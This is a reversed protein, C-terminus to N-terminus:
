ACKGGWGFWGSVAGIVFGSAHGANIWSPEFYPGTFPDVVVSVLALFGILAAVKESWNFQQHSRFLHILSYGALAYVVGSTGYFALPSESFIWMFGTGAMITLYGTVVLFLSYRKRNWHKEMPIGVALLGVLNAAFHPFGRHLVPSFPWAIVPHVGFIGTALIQISDLSTIATFAVELLFVAAVIIGLLYTLTSDGETYEQYAKNLASVAPNESM